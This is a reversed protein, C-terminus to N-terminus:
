SINRLSSGRWTPGADLMAKFQGMILGEGTQGPFMNKGAQCLLRILMIHCIVQVSTVINCSSRIVHFDNGVENPAHYYMFNYGM